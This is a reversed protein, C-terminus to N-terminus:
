AEQGAAPKSWGEGHIIHRPLATKV